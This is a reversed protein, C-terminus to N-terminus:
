LVQKKAKQMRSQNKRGINVFPKKIWIGLIPFVTTIKSIIGRWQPILAELPRKPIAYEFILKSIQATQLPTGSFALVAQPMDVQRDLMPTAVADPCIATVYVNHERLESAIALSYGRVAYKTATYVSLGPVPALGALSAINIIHGNRQAVMYKAATYCGYIVGKINVNLHLDTERLPCPEYVYGGMLVGAVNMLIDIRGFRAVVDQMVREWDAINCVDLTYYHSRQSDWQQEHSLNALAIPDIDTAILTYGRLYADTALQKGIGSSCGTILCVKPIIPM